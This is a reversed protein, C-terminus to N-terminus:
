RKKLNIYHHVTFSVFPHLPELRLRTGLGLYRKRKKRRTAPTIKKEKKM